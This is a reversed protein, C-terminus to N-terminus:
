TKVMEIWLPLNYYTTVRSIKGEKVEFFSGANIKYEQGKAEPLSGDTKLYRGQVTFEVAVRNSNDSSLFVLDKLQEKYCNDMHSMFKTFAMIGIETRGQNINHEVEEDLYSLMKETQGQNFAQVYLQVVEIPKRFSM